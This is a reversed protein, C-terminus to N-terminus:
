VMLTKDTSQTVYSVRQVIRQQISTQIWEIQTLQSLQMGIGVGLHVEIGSRDTLQQNELHHVM